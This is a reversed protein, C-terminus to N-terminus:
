AAPGGLVNQVAHPFGVEVRISPPERHNTVIASHESDFKGGSFDEVLRGTPRAANAERGVSGPDAEQVVRRSAVVASGHGHDVHIPLHSPERGAPGAQSPERPGGVPAFHRESPKSVLHAPANMRDPHVAGNATQELNGSVHSQRIDRALPCRERQQIILAHPAPENGCAVRLRM